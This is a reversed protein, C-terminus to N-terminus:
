QSAKVRLKMGPKILKPNDIGNLAIIQKTSIANLRAIGSLTDGSKVVYYDGVFAQKDSINSSAKSPTRISGTKVPDLSKRLEGAKDSWVLKGNKDIELPRGAWDTRQTQATLQTSTSEGGIFRYGTFVSIACIAVLGFRLVLRGIGEGPDEELIYESFQNIDDGSQGIGSLYEDFVPEKKENASMGLQYM